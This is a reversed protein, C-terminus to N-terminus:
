KKQEISRLRTRAEELNPNIRLAKKLLVAAEETRGAQLYLNALELWARAERPYLESTLNGLSIAENLHNGRVLMGASRILEDLGIIPHVPDAEFAKRYFDIGTETEARWLFALGSVALLLPSDPYMDRGTQLVAVAKDPANARVFYDAVRALDASIDPYLPAGAFAEKLRGLLVDLESDPTIVLRRVDETYTRDWAKKWEAILDIFESKFRPHKKPAAPGTSLRIYDDFFAIPGLRHYRRLGEEGGEEELAMAMHSGVKTFAQNSVLHVGMLIKRKAQRFDQRLARSSVCDNFYDFSADLDNRSKSLSMKNWQYSSLGHNFAQFVASYIKQGAKDPAYASNDIDEDLILDILRTVYPTLNTGEMNCAVALAFRDAPFLLIQTRTEPQAGSHGVAFHGDWPLVQWGMGYGTLLGSSLAMPSFMKRWTTEKLIKGDIVARAYKLLDVVTSRLGGGAFRSSINVFESLQPKGRVLQYGRVRNPIVALPNDLRTDTMGLPELINRRIYEGYPLGSAGEIAAGLLNYGYTSYNYRTGPEAVLDFDQFIALAQRTTKPEKIRGEVSYDRYHSIGGLHGLLQRITIPWKKRPFYPVYAQIENDLDIRGEEVLQLIAIATITKTISALRYSSEPGAPTSNEMDALGFGKVWTVDDKIFGATLGPVRDFVMQESVFNEFASLAEAYRGLQEAAPGQTWGIVPLAALVFVPIRKFLGKM